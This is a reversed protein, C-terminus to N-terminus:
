VAIKDSIFHQLVAVAQEDFEAWSPEIKARMEIGNGVLICVFILSWDTVFYLGFYCQLCKPRDEFDGERGM